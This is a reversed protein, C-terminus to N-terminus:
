PTPNSCTPWTSNVLNTLQEPSLGDKGWYRNVLNDDAQQPTLGEAEYGCVMAEISHLDSHQSSQTQFYIGVLGGPVLVCWFLIAFRKAAKSMPKRKPTAVAM